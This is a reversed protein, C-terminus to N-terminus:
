MANVPQVRFHLRIHRRQPVFQTTIDWFVANKMTVASFIEYAGDVQILMRSPSRATKLSNGVQFRYTERGSPKILFFVITHFSETCQLNDTACTILELLKADM